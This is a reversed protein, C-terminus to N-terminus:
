SVPGASWITSWAKVDKEMQTMKGMLQMVHDGLQAADKYWENLPSSHVGGDAEYFREEHVQPVNPDISPNASEGPNPSMVQPPVELGADSQSQSLVNWANSNTSSSNSEAMHGSRLPLIQQILSPTHTPPGLFPDKAFPLSLVTGCDLQGPYNPNCDLWTPDGM